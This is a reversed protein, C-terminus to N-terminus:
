CGGEEEGGHWQTLLVTGGNTKYMYLFVCTCRCPATGGAERRSLRGLREKTKFFWAMAEGGGNTLIHIYICVPVNVHCLPM